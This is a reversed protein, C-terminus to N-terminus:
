EDPGLDISDISHFWWNKPEAEGAIADPHPNSDMWAGMYLASAANELYDVAAPDGGAEWASFLGDVQDPSMEFTINRRRQEAYVPDVGQLGAVAVRTKQQWAPRMAGTAPDRTAAARLEARARHAAVARGDPSAAVKDRAAQQLQAARAPPAQGRLWRYVTSRSVGLEAAAATVNVGGRPGTGFAAAAMAKAQVTDPDRPTAGAMWRYVTSRAVGLTHAAKEADVGGRPGAGFATGLLAPLSLTGRGTLGRFLTSTLNETFGDPHM